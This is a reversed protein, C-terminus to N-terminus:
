GHADPRVLIAARWMRSWRATKRCRFPPTRFAIAAQDDGLPDREHTRAHQRTGTAAPHQAHLPMSRGAREAAIRVFDFRGKAPVDERTWFDRFAKSVDKPTGAFQMGVVSTPVGNVIMDRGIAEASQPQVPTKNCATGAVATGTILAGALCAGRVLYHVPKMPEFPETARRRASHPRVRLTSIEPAYKQLGLYGNSQCSRSMPPRCPRVSCPRPQQGRRGTGLYQDDARQHRLVDPRQVRALLDDKPWLRKLVTATEARDFM